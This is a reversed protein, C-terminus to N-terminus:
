GIYIAFVLRVNDPRTEADWGTDVTVTGTATGTVTHTHAGDSTTAMQKEPGEAANGSESFVDERKNTLGAPESNAATHSKYQQIIDGSEEDFAPMGHYHSGAVAATGAVTLSASSTPNGGSPAATGAAEATLAANAAGWGRVFQDRLDPVNAGLAAIAATKGPAIVSGDCLQWGTPINLTAFMKVEGIVPASATSGSALLEDYVKKIATQLDTVTGWTPTDLQNFQVNSAQLAPPVSSGYYGGLQEVWNGNTYAYMQGTSSDLALAGDVAVLTDIGDTADCLTTMRQIGPSGLLKWNLSPFTPQDGLPARQLALWIMGRDIVIENQAYSKTPDWQQVEARPAIDSWKAGDWVAGTRTSTEYFAEGQTAAAVPRATGVQFVPLAVGSAQGPPIAILRGADPNTPNNEYVVLQRDSTGGTTAPTGGTTAMTGTGTTIPTPADAPWQPLSADFTAAQTTAYAPITLVIDLTGTSMAGVDGARMPPTDYIMGNYGAPANGLVQGTINGGRAFSSRGPLFAFRNAMEPDKALVAIRDKAPGFVYATAIKNPNANSRKVFEQAFWQQTTLAM